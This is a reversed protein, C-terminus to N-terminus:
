KHEKCTCTNPPGAYAYFCWYEHGEDIRAKQTGSVLIRTAPYDPVRNLLRQQFEELMALTIVTEGSRM